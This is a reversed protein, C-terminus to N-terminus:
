KIYSELAIRVGEIILQAAVLYLVFPYVALTVYYHTQTFIFMLLILTLIAIIMRNIRAITSVVLFIKNTTKM